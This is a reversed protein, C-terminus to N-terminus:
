YVKFTEVGIKELDPRRLLIDDDLEKVIKIAWPEPLYEDRDYSRVWLEEGEALEDKSKAIIAEVVMRTYDACKMLEVAFPKGTKIDEEHGHLWAAYIEFGESM